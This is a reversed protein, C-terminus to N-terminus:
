QYTLNIKNEIVQYGEAGLRLIHRAGPTLDVARHWLKSDGKRSGSEYVALPDGFQSILRLSGEILSISAAPSRLLRVAEVPNIYALLETQLRETLYILSFVGTLAWRDIPDEEDYDDLLSSALATLLAGAAAASTVFAAETVVRKVNAKEHDNLKEWEQAALEKKFSTLFAKNNGIFKATTRYTGEIQKDGLLINHEPKGFRKTFGVWLWGRLQTFGATIANQHVKTATNKSWNGHIRRNLAQIEQGVISERNKDYRVLDGNPAKIFTDSPLDITEGDHREKYMDLLNGKEKGTSDYIKKNNLYALGSTVQVYHETMSSGLYVWSGDAFARQLKNTESAKNKDLGGDQLINLQRELVSVFGTKRVSVADDVTRRINGSYMANAKKYDATSYYEGSIAEVMNSAGGIGLNTLSALYNMAMLLGSTNSQLKRLLKNKDVDVGLVSFYGLDLEKQGYLHMDLFDELMKAAKSEPGYIYEQQDKGYRMLKRGGSDRLGYRRLSSGAVALGAELTYLVENRMAFTNAMATYAQLSAGLDHSIIDGLVKSAEVKAKTDALDRAELPDMGEEKYKNYYEESLKKYTDRDYQQTFYTPIQKMPKGTSDKLVGREMETNARAIKNKMLKITTTAAESVKKGRIIELDGQLVTPIRTGTGKGELAADLKNKTQYYYTLFDKLPKDKMVKDYAERAEVPTDSRTELPNIVITSGDPLKVVADRYIDEGKKSSAKQLQEIADNTKINQDITSKRAVDDQNKLVSAMTSLLKDNSDAAFEMWHEMTTVDYDNEDLMKKIEARNWEPRFESIKDVLISKSKKLYLNEIVQMNSTMASGADLESGFVEEAGPISSLHLSIDNVVGYAQSTRYLNSLARISKDSDGVKYAKEAEAKLTKIHRGTMTILKPVSKRPDGIEIKDRISELQQIIKFRKKNKELGNLIEIRRDLLDVIEEQRDAFEKYVQPEALKDVEAIYSKDDIFAESSFKDWEPEENSDLKGGYQSNYMDTFLDTKTYFYIDIAENVNATNAVLDMFLKSKKGNDAELILDCKSM